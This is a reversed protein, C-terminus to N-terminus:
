DTYLSLLFLGICWTESGCESEVRLWIEQMQM